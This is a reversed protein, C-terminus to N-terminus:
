VVLFVAQRAAESKQGLLVPTTSTTGLLERLYQQTKVLKELLTLRQPEGSFEFYQYNTITPQVGSERL